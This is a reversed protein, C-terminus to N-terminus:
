EGELKYLSIKKTAASCTLFQGDRSIYPCLGSTKPMEVTVWTSGGDETKLCFLKYNKSAYVIMGHNEDQFNIAVAPMTYNDIREGALDITQTTWTGCSDITKFLTGDTNLLYGSETTLFFMGVIKTCKEPVAIEKWTKGGDNTVGLSKPAGIYINKSDIVSLFKNYASGSKLPFEGLYSWSKGQDKSVLNVGSNGSSIIFSEDYYDLGFRCASVNSSQSWNKGGDSTYSIAGAYGITVGISENLFGAYNVATTVSSESLLKWPSNNEESVLVESTEEAKSATAEEQVAVETPKQTSMEAAEGGRKSCGSGIVSILLMFCVFYTVSSKKNM